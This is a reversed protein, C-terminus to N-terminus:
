ERTEDTGLRKTRRKRSEETTEGERNRTDEKTADKRTKNTSLKKM